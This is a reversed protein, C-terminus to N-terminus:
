MGWVTTAKSGAPAERHFIKQDWTKQPDRDFLILHGASTACRDMTSATQRLGKALTTDLSRHIVKM